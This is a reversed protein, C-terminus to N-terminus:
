RKAEDVRRYLQAMEVAARAAYVGRGGGELSCRAEAQERNATAVVGDIVPVGFERAIHALSYGVQTNILQAHPTEGQIIVGLAIFADHGKRRAVKHILSPIEYAGPVWFVDLRTEDAGMALLEGTAAQVLQGTLDGNFRSVVLALALAGADLTGKFQRIDGLAPAREQMEYASQKVAM